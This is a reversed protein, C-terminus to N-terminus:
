DGRWQKGLDLAWQEVKLYMVGLLGAPGSTAPALVEQTKHAEEVPAVINETVWDTSVRTAEDLKRSLYLAAGGISVALIAAKILEAQAQGSLRM